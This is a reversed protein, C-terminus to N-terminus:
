ASDNNLDQLDELPSASSDLTVPLYDRTPLLAVLPLNVSKTSPTLTAVLLSAQLPDAPSPLYPALHALSAASLKALPLKFVRSLFTLSDYSLSKTPDVSLKVNFTDSDV